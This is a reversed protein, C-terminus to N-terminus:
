IYRFDLDVDLMKGITKPIHFEIYNSGNSGSFPSAPLPGNPQLLTIKPATQAASWVSGNHPIPHLAQATMRPTATSSAVAQAQQTARSKFM